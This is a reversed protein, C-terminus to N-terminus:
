PRGFGGQGGWGGQASGVTSSSQTWSLVESGSSTLTYSGNLEFLDSAIWCSNYSGSLTFALLTEGSSNKLEYDGASFSTGSSIYTNVSGSSPTECIGGFAAITGGTVTISGNVDVSGAMGGMSAGSKIIVTGGSMTFNGNSDVADTDGGPTTVDLYGGSVNILPTSGGACANIGDDKAYIFVTGGSLDIVNGEIGEHSEIINVSGAKISVKGGAHVGDDASRISVSGGSITIDGVSEAGNELEEGVKAHLGDDMSSVSVEGGSIVISNAAKIGKSSYTTKESNGSGSSLQVWDAEIVGSSISGILYGNMSGNVASGDSSAIVSGGDPAAGSAVVIVQMSDYGSPAKLKLGYYQSRGGYIMTEYAAKVYTEGGDETYFRVYYDNDESYLGSPVVLYFETAASGESGSYSSTSITVVGGSIEANYAASIGDCAAMIEVRGDLISVTGRQNGKQSTDSNSTKIGDSGTSVAIVTGSEITVSDNGKLANGPATVKLTCNKITLDDKSKVGNEANATVILTGKGNLKLDCASWIAADQSGSVASRADTVTNYTGDASKVHVQDASVVAIPAADSCTISVGSLVLVVKEDDDAEVVIQGEDLRGTLTYEGASTITYTSGNSSVSGDSTRIAFEGAAELSSDAPDEVPEATADSVPAATVTGTSTGSHNASCASFFLTLLLCLILLSASIKSRKM